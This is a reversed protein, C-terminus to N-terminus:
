SRCGRAPRVESGRREVRRNNHAAYWNAQNKGKWISGERDKEREREREEEGKREESWVLLLPRGQGSDKGRSISVLGTIDLSRIRGGKRGGELLSDGDEVM